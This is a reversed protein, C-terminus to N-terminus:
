SDDVVASLVGIFYALYVCDAISLDPESLVWQLGDAIPQLTDADPYVNDRGLYELYKGRLECCRDESLGIRPGINMEGM